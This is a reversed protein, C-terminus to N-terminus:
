LKLREWECRLRPASNQEGSSRTATGPGRLRQYPPPPSGCGPSVPRIDRANPAMRVPSAWVPQKSATLKQHLLVLPMLHNARNHNCDKSGAM